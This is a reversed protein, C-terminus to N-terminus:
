TIKSHRFKAKDLDNQYAIAVGFNLPSRFFQGSNQPIWDGAQFDIQRDDPSLKVYLDYEPASPANALQVIICADDDFIPYNRRSTEDTHHGTNWPCPVVWHRM